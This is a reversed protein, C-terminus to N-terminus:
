SLWIENLQMIGNAPYIVGQVESRRAYFTSRVYPIIMGGEEQVLQQIETYLEQRKAQDPEIRAQEILGDVTENAMLTEPWPAESHVALTLLLDTSAYVSWNSMAMPYGAQESWYSDPPLQALNVTVGVQKAMEQFVVASELMGPRVTSTALTTEFGDPYGAEALLARAKELDQEVPPLDARFPASPLIPQDNGVLGRGQLVAQIFGNRDILYKMAQRVRNDTFPAQNMRMNIPQYSSGTVEVIEVGDVNELAPISETGLQWMLDIEGSTLAAVQAASEPILLLRIEDLYPLEERWYSDNRVVIAQEGPLYEKLKFPGTGLSTENLTEVTSGAPAILASTQPTALIIPFDMNPSSLTFEVTSEDLAAMGQVFSLGQAGIYANDPNLLQEMSYVVDAASLPSGDHFAVDQRIQFTWRLGDESSQWSEALTPQLVFNADLRVLPEYMTLVLMAATMVDYSWPNLDGFDGTFAVRVTGGQQPENSEDASASAANSETPAEVAPAAVCGSILLTGVSLGSMAIFQRRNM